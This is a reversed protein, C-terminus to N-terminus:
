IYILNFFTNKVIFVKKLTMNWFFPSEDMNYINEPLIKKEEITKKLLEFFSNLSELDKGAKV